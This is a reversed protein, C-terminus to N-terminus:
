VRGAREERQKHEIAEGRIHARCPECILDASPRACVLCARAVAPAADEVDTASAAATARASAPSPVALVPCAANRVVRDAVSGLLLRSFGSRGHTGVVVLDIAHSGAYRLIETAPDGRASTVVVPVDPGAEAAAAAILRTIEVEGPHLVHLLHLRAGFRRAHEVALRLAADAADSFDTAILIEQISTAAPAM